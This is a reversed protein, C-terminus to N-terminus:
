KLLHLFFNNLSYHAAQAESISHVSYASHALDAATHASHDVAGPDLSVSVSSIFVQFHWLVVACLGFGWSHEFVWSLELTLFTFRHAQSYTIKHIQSNTLERKRIRGGWLRARMGGNRLWCKDSVMGWEENKVGEGFNGVWSKKRKGWKENSLGWDDTLITLSLGLLDLIVWTWCSKALFLWAWCSYTWSFYNELCTLVASDFEANALGCHTLNFM